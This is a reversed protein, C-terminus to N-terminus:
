PTIDQTESPIASETSNSVGGARLLCFHYCIYFIRMHPGIFSFPIYAPFSACLVLLFCIRDGHWSRDLLLHICTVLASYVMSLSSWVWLFSLIYRNFGSFYLYALGMRSWDPQFCFFYFM